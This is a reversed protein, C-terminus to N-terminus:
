RALVAEPDSRLFYEEFPFGQFKVIASEQNAQLIGEGQQFTELRKIVEQPLNFIQALENADNSQMKLFFKTNCQAMVVKGEETTFERFSQSAIMLSTNYKAGRRALDSLFKATDKHRMMLWAEDVVVRKRNKSRKIFKEWVWSTMVFMAYTRQFETKLGSVDFVVLPNDYFTGISQGDFYGMGGEKTFLYLITTLRSAGMSESRKIFSSITPMEKYTKGVFLGEKTSKGGPQYISEPDETIGRSLYEDRVARSALAREEATIKEGTQAEIISSVLHCIDEAKGAIDVYLRGTEEDEDPEIDFINFMCTMNPKFKVIIGGLAEVLKRYEGEPDIIVVSIGQAISRSTIGKVTFSKGSRTTGTIFMHLGFLRPSGIYLDLFAPSGTQNTGFYIGSPHTFDSSLLPSLCAANAVTVDHYEGITKILPLTHLFGEIQRDYMTIAKTVGLMDKITNCKYVLEPYNPATVMITITSAVLMNRGLQIDTLLEYFFAYKTELAGIKTTDGHKQALRLDSGINVQEKAVLDNAQKKTYPHLAVSVTVGGITTIEKFWGFCIYEPLSEVVLVRCYMDDIKLYDEYEQIRDPAFMQVLEPVSSSRKNNQKQRSLLKKLNLLKVKIKVVEM